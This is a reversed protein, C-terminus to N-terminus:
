GRIVNRLKPEHSMSSVKTAVTFRGLPRIREQARCGDGIKEYFKLQGPKIESVRRIGASEMTQRAMCLRM